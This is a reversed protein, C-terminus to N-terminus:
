ESLQFNIPLTYRSRLVMGSQKAPSWKPISQLCRMAEEDCGFGASKLVQFDQATGDKNIVFQIYVKGSFKARQAAAPYKLNKSLYKAFEDMGGIFEAQQEVATFVEDEQVKQKAQEVRDPNVPPQEEKDVILANDSKHEVIERKQPMGFAISVSNTSVYLKGEKRAPTWNGLSKVARIAEEDCGYGLSKIVKIDDLVGNILVLFMVEVNGKIGKAKAADPMKIRRSLMDFFTQNGASYKAQVSGYQEEYEKDSLQRPAEVARDMDVPPSEVELVKETAVQIEVREPPPPPVPSAVQIDQRIEPPLFKGGEVPPPPLKRKNTQMTAKGKKSAPTSQASSTTYACISVLSIIILQKM